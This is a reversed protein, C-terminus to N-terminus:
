VKWRRAQQQANWMAAYRGNETLLDAHTGREVLRGEDLVLITDAAAVTSLRHAIVVVTKDEVLKDIARQVAVESETDLASTPEDLLVIPADKLIARAISIRQREGGSLAGGIEGVTTDYGDPLRTIFEHCYAAEVEADTADPKAMRINNRISDDFLYVDQFVVSIHRMLTEPTVNRIDVGGIKISGNQPDAYRTVLKTITTKGSGSPGVLATLSREPLTFAIDHLVRAGSASEDEAAYEFDVHDFAIDFREISGDPQHVPLPAVALLDGIRELATEMIDFMATLNGFMALSESYRVMIAFLALMIAVNLSGDVVWLLGLLTVVLIGVQVVTRIMLSPIVKWKQAASQKQRLNKLSDQLRVSQLGVQRTARLVALGQAYEILNATVAEHAEASARYEYAALDKLKRYFPIAFPFIVGMALALRWDIFLTIFLTTVPPIIAYLVINYLGGMAMVVLDVHGSLMQSLEGVKRVALEELPIRRLHEGLKIQLEHRAVMQADWDYRNIIFRLAAELLVLGVLISGLTALRRIGNEGPHILAQFLPYLMAYMVGQVIASAVTILIAIRLLRAMSGAARIMRQFVSIM